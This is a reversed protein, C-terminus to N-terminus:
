GTAAQALVQSQRYGLRASIQAAARKAAAAFPPVKERPIRTTPGSVSIAGIVKAASDLIPAAICRSGLYSEENDLAYGRQRTLGLDKKLLMPKSLTHPTFREFKTAAILEEQETQPLHALMAKGLATCYLPRRSGIQSVLRFTHLSERVDIYLVESVDLMALNITEATARWLQELVPRAIKCLTSQYTSGSGFRLLKIGVGYAGSEDRFVYGENELHALFRYATSKNIGTQRSVDKL